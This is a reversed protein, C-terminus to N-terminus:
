CQIKFRFKKRNYDYEFIINDDLEKVEYKQSTFSMYATGNKKITYLYTYPEHHTYISEDYIEIIVNGGSDTVAKFNDSWFVHGGYYVTLICIAGFLAIDCLIFFVIAIIIRNNKM